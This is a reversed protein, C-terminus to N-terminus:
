IRFEFYPQTESFYIFVTDSHGYIVTEWRMSLGAKNLLMMAGLINRRELNYEESIEKVSVQCWTTRESDVKKKFQSLLEGALAYLETEEMDAVSAKATQVKEKLAEMEHFFSKEEM